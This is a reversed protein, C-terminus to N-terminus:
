FRPLILFAATTIIFYLLFVLLLYGMIERFELKAVSLLPIAFFPQIMDTMMNGWSYALILKNLPVGLKVASPVLYPSTILWESGGSPVFYNLIGTYWFTILPFTQPSSINVFGYTLAAGLNTSTFLGAIGAYFPFQLIIGWVARSAEEVAKLFFIPRYHLAIGLLLFIFNTNDFTFLQSVSMARWGQNFLWALGLAVVAINFGPWWVLRSSPSLDPSREPFEFSKQSNLQETTIHRARSQPPHLLYMLSTVAVIVVLVLIINFATFITQSQPILDTEGLVELKILANKPTNAWLPATGTLGAHWTCGLGLYASAILLRYDVKPIKRVLLVALMSSATLSLGWHICATVMSFLSLLLVAQAPKDESPMSSLRELARKTLPALAVVYGTILMICIQMGTDLLKWFGGGWAAVSKEIGWGWEAATMNLPRGCAIALAFTIFTLIWVIILSDPVWRESLSSLANGFRQVVSHYYDRKHKM